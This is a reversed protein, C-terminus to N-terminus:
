KYDERSPTFVDIVESDELISAGHPENSGFIYSDGGEAIFEHDNTKFRLKGKIVYGVQHEKHSHLPVESKKKLFFHCLMINENYVLTRRFIGPLAEVPDILEKKQKFENM